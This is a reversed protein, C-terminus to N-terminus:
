PSLFIVVVNLHLVHLIAMQLGELHSQHLICKFTEWLFFYDPISNFSEPDCIIFQKKYTEFQVCYKKLKKVFRIYGM